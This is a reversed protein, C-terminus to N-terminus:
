FTAFCKRAFIIVQPVGSSTLSPNDWPMGITQRRDVPELISMEEELAKRKWHLSVSQTLGFPLVTRLMCLILAKELDTPWWLFM